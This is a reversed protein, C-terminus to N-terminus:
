LVMLFMSLLSLGNMEMILTVSYGSWIETNSKPSSNLKMELSPKYFLLINRDFIRLTFLMAMDRSFNYILTIEFLMEYLLM